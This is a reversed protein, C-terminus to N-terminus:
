RSPGLAGLWPGGPSLDGLKYVRTFETKGVVYVRQEETEIDFVLRNLDVAGHLVMSNSM